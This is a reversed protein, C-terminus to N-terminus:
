LQAKDNNEPRMVCQQRGDTQGDARTYPEDTWCPLDYFSRIRYFYKGAASTVSLM